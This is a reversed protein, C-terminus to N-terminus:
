LDEDGNVLKAGLNEGEVTVRPNEADFQPGAALGMGTTHVGAQSGDELVIWGITSKSGRARDLSAPRTRPGRSPSVVATEIRQPSGSSASASAPAVAPDASGTSSKGPPGSLVDVTFMIAFAVAVAALTILPSRHKM